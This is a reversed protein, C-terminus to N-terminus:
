WKPQKAARSDTSGAGAGGPGPQGMLEAAEAWLQRATPNKTNQEKMENAAQSFWGRAKEKDGRRWEALAMLFWSSPDGRHFLALSKESAALSQAWHGVRYEALSLTVYGQGDEPALEVAERAHVLGGEYDRPPRGAPSVLERALNGHAPALDLKIRIAERYAAVALEPKGQESLATALTYPAVVDDPKLRSAERYESVADDLKGQRHLAVGLNYHGKAHDPELRIVERYEDVAEKLKGRAQLTNGLYYHAEFDNPKLRIAARFETTANELKGQAGLTTALQYHGMVSDPRLRIARRLQTAAEELKGQHGLIKGLYVHAEAIDPDIRIAERFEAAAEDLKQQHGLITGLYVHAEALEPDIRIAERFEAAAEDMKGEDVLIDGRKFHISDVAAHQGPRNGYWVAGLLVLAGVAIALALRPKRRARQGSSRDAAIIGNQADDIEGSTLCLPCLRDAGGPSGPAGCRPCTSRDPDAM